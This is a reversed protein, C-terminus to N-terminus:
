PLMLLPFLRPDNTVRLYYEMMEREIKSMPKPSMEDSVKRKIDEVKVHFLCRQGDAYQVYDGKEACSKNMGQCSFFCKGYDISQNMGACSTFCNNDGM